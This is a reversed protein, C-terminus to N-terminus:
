VVIDSRSSLSSVVIAVIFWSAIMLGDPKEIMNALTTYVFIVTVLAYPWSLRLFWLGRSSRWRNQMAEETATIPVFYDAFAANFCATMEAPSWIEPIVM